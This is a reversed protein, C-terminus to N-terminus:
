VLTTEKKSDQTRWVDNSDDVLDLCKFFLFIIKCKIRDSIQGQISIIRYVRFRSM